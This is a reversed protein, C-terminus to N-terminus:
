LWEKFNIKEQEEEKEEKVEELDSEYYIKGNNAYYIPEGSSLIGIQGVIVIEGFKDKYRKKTSM